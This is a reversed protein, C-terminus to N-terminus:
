HLSKIAEGSESYLGPPLVDNTWKRWRDLLDRMERIKATAKAGTIPQRGDGLEALISDCDPKDKKAPPTAPEISIQQGSALTLLTRGKTSEVPCYLCSVMNDDVAVRGDDSGKEAPSATALHHLYAAASDAVICPDESRWEGKGDLGVGVWAEKQAGKYPGFFKKGVVIAVRGLCNVCVKGTLNEEPAKNM